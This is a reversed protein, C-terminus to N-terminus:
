DRKAPNPYKKPNQIPKINRIESKPNTNFESIVKHITALDFGGRQLFRAARMRDGESIGRAGFRRALARKANREETENNGHVMAELLPREIGAALLKQLSRRRSYGKRRAPGDLFRRIYRGDDVLGLREAWAVAEAIAGPEYGKKRLRRGCEAVTRDKGLLWGGLWAVADPMEKSMKAKREM